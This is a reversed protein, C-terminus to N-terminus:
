RDPGPGGGLDDVGPGSGYEGALPIDRFSFLRHEDHLQFLVNAAADIVTRDAHSERPHLQRWLRDLCALLVAGSPFPDRMAAASCATLNVVAAAAHVVCYHKALEFMEASQSYEKGLDARLKLHEAHLTTLEGLFHKALEAAATLRQAEDDKAEDAMELLMSISHPMALVSDDMGRCYLDLRDPQFPPLEGNLDFLTAARETAEARVGPEAGTANALLGDLALGITRLNVVTNGDAFLAVTMDRVAKQFPGYVPNTRLYYRAGIVNCLQALTRDILTPVFYKATSSWLSAQQPVLQLSRIAAGSLADGILLDAFCEVLQRKTYPIDAVSGGYLQRKRAFDTAIRLSTDAAGLVFTNVAVRPLLTSRLAIELGQGEKGILASKPVPCRDLRLGSLDSGRLGHRPESPLPRLTSAPVTRKDVLFASFGDPRGARGTRAFVIVADSVTANGIPWKEGTLLYGDGDDSREAVLENALLDSGHARESLAFALTAGNRVKEAYEARQEPSAAMWLTVYNLFTLCVGTATTSDRRGVLRLLTFGDEVNVARGGDEPPVIYDYIGLQRLQGIPVFPYQEREDLDLTQVYSLPNAPNRPDGLSSEFEEALARLEDVRSM